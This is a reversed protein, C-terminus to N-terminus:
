SIQPEKKQYNALLVPTFAGLHIAVLASINNGLLVYMVPVFGGFLVMVSTIAWYFTSSLWEPKEGKKTRRLKYLAAIEPISGGIIGCVFAEIYTM